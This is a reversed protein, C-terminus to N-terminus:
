VRSHRDTPRNTPRNTGNKNKKCKQAKQAYLKQGSARTVEELVAGAWGCAVLTATYGAKNTIKTSAEQGVPFLLAIPSPIEWIQLSSVGKSFRGLLLILQCIYFSIFTGIYVLFVKSRYFKRVHPLLLIKTPYIPYRSM